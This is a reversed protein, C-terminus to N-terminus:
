SPSSSTLLANSFETFDNCAASFPGKLFETLCTELLALLVSSIKPSTCSTITDTFFCFLRRLKPPLIDSSGSPPRSSEPIIIPLLSALEGDRRLRSTAEISLRVLFLSDDDEGKVVPSFAAAEGPVDIDVVIGAPPLASPFSRSSLVSFDRSAISLLSLSLLFSFFFFIVKAGLTSFLAASGTTFSSPLLASSDSTFSPVSSPVSSPDSSLKLMVSAPSCESVM